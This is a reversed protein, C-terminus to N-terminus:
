VSVSPSTAWKYWSGADYYYFDGTDEELYYSNDAIKLGGFTGVPKPDTSKGKFEFNWGIEISICEKSNVTTM